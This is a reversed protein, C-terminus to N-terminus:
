AAVSVATRTSATPRGCPSRVTGLVPAPCARNCCHAAAAGPARAQATSPALPWPRTNVRRSCCAPSGTCSTGPHTVARSRRRLPRRSLLSPCSANAAARASCRSGPKGAARTSSPAVTSRSSASSRSSRTCSRVRASSSPQPRAQPRDPRVTLAATPASPCGASPRGAPAPVAPPGIRSIGHVPCRSPARGGGPAAAAAAACRPPRASAQLMVARTLASRSRASWGCGRAALVLAEVAGQLASRPPSPRGGAQSQAPPWAVRAEIRRPAARTRRRPGCTRCSLRSRRPLRWSAVRRQLRMTGQDRARIGPLASGLPIQLSRSRSPFLRRSASRHRQLPVQGPGIKRVMLRSRALPRVEKANRCLLTSRVHQVM